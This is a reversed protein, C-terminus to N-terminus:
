IHRQIDMKQGWDNIVQSMPSIMWGALHWTAYNHSLFVNAAAMLKSAHSLPNTSTVRSHGPTQWYCRIFCGKFYYLQSFAGGNLVQLRIYPNISACSLKLNGYQWYSWMYLDTLSNPKQKQSLCPGSKIRAVPTTFTPGLDSDTGMQGRGFSMQCTYSLLKATETKM